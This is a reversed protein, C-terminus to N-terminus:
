RSVLPDECYVTKKLDVNEQKIEETEELIPNKISLNKQVCKDIFEELDDITEKDNEDINQTSNYELIKCTDEDSSSGLINKM